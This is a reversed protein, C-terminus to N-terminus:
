CLFGLKQTRPAWSFSTQLPVVPFFWEVVWRLLNQPLESSTSADRNDTYKFRVQCTIRSDIRRPSSRRNLPAMHVHDTPPSFATTSQFIFARKSSDLLREWHSNWHPTGDLLGYILKLSDTRRAFGFGEFVATSM